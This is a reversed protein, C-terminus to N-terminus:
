VMSASLAPSRWGSVIARATAMSKRSGVFAMNGALKEDGVPEVGDDAQMNKKGFLRLRM